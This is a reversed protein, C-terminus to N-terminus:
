KHKNKVMKLAKVKMNHQKNRDKMANLMNSTMQEIRHEQDSLRKELDQIMKDKALNQSRLNDILKKSGTNIHNVIRTKMDDGYLENDKKPQRRFLRYLVLLDKISIPSGLTLARYVILSKSCSNIRQWSLAGIVQVREAHEEDMESMKSDTLSDGNTLEIYEKEEQKLKNLLYHRTITSKICKKKMYRRITLEAQKSLQKLVIKVAPDLRYIYNGNKTKAIQHLEAPVLDSASIREAMELEDNPVFFEPDAKEPYEPKALTDFILPCESDENDQQNAESDVYRAIEELDVSSSEYSNETWKESGGDQSENSMDRDVGYKGEDVFVDIGSSHRNTLSEANTGGHDFADDGAVCQCNSLRDATSDNSIVIM